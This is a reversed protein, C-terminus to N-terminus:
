KEKRMFVAAMVLSSIFNAYSLLGAYPAIVNLISPFLTALAVIGLFTVPPVACKVTPAEVAESWLVLLFMAVVLFGSLMERAQHREEGDLVWLMVFFVLLLSYSVRRVLTKRRLRHRAHEVRDSIRTELEALASELDLRAANARAMASSDYFHTVQDFLLLCEKLM